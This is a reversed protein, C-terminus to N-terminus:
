EARTALACQVRTREEEATKGESPCSDQFPKCLRRLRLLHRLSLM